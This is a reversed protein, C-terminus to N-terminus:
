LYRAVAMGAAALILLVAGWKGSVGGRTRLRAAEGLLREREEPTAAAMRQMAANVGMMAPRTILIGLMYALIALGGAIALSLGHGSALFASLLGGSTKWYLWLGSLTSALALLPLVTTLGRRQLAVMVKGADPGVEGLAPGLMLSVFVGFGVWLTGTVIHILRLTLILLDM